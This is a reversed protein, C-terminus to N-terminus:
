KKSSADLFSIKIHFFLKEREIKMFNFCPAIPNPLYVYKSVCNFPKMYNHQFYNWKNICIINHDPLESGANSTSFSGLAATATENISTVCIETVHQQTLQAFVIRGDVCM